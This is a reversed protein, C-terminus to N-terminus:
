PAEGYAILRGATLPGDNNGRGHPGRVTFTHLGAGCRGVAGCRVVGVEEDPGLTRRREESRTAEVLDVDLVRGLLDLVHAPPVHPLESTPPLDYEHVKEFPLELRLLPGTRPLGREQRLPGLDVTKEAVARAHPCLQRVIKRLVVPM